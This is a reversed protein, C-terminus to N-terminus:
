RQKFLIEAGNNEYIRNCNFICEKLSPISWISIYERLGPKGQSAFTLEKRENNRKTFFLYGPKMKEGNRPYAYIPSDYAYLSAIKNSHSDTYIPYAPDYKELLWSAANADKHVLLGTIDLRYSSLAISYPTEASSIDKHESYEFVLGSTFIFYPVLVLLTLYILYKADPGNTEIADKNHLIRSRATLFLTWATEAGIVCFPSLTILTIHYWRTANLIGAFGPFLICAMLLGVSTVCLAIYTMNLHLKRPSILLRFCGLVILLQTLYQFIRFLKGQWTVDFFDLGLATKILGPSNVAQMTTTTGIADGIANVQFNLVSSIFILNIGSGVLSYWSLLFAVYLVVPIALFKLPMSNKLTQGINDPLGGNRSSIKGWMNIFFKSRIIALLPIALVLYAITIFGLSYHSVAISFSFIILLFLKKVTPLKNEVLLLITLALFLEAVQQRCLSTIELSFTPMSIFFFVALFSAKPGIQPRFIRFLILPVLAFLLPYVAKFLWIGDIGMMLSYAPGLILISICSNIPHPTTCDWLGNTLANSYFRYETYIDSGVLYQSTLTTQYLLGLGIIFLALPYVGPTISRNFVALCVVAIIALLSLILILNSGTMNSIQVGFIILLLIIVLFLVANINPLLKLKTIPPSEFDKDRAWAAAILIATEAALTIAIPWQSIPQSIKFLPFIFNIAAGSFMVLALSLGVSYAISEIKNISHIKLIRLMLIGPVFTVFVFGVIQHLVPVEIGAGALVTLIIQVLTIGGCLLLCNRLNWDNPWRM